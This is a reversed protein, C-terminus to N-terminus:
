VRCRVSSLFGPLEARQCISALLAGGSDKRVERSHDSSRFRLHESANALGVFIPRFGKGRSKDDYFRSVSEDLALRLATGADHVYAYHPHTRLSRLVGIGADAVVFEFRGPTADYVLYGTQPRESHEIINSRLEGIASALQGAADAAFGADAAARKARMAFDTWNAYEATIASVSVFGQANTGNFWKTGNRMARFLEGHRGIDLWGDLCLGNHQLEIVPGLDQARAPPLDALTISKSQMGLAIDDLLDFTLREIV